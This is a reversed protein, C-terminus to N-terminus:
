IQAATREAAEIAAAEFYLTKYDDLAFCTNNFLYISNDPFKAHYDSKLAPRQLDNLRLDAPYVGAM